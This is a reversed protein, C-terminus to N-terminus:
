KCAQEAAKQLHALEQQRASNDMLVRAGKDNVTSIPAKKELLAINKRANECNRRKEAAAEQEKAAKDANEKAEQQRKKFDMEKEATTKPGVPKAAAGSKDKESASAAESAPTYDPNSNSKQAKPTQLRPPPTDSIITQGKSDKWKYPQASAPSLSAAFATLTLAFLLTNKM